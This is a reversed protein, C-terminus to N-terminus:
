TIFIGYFHLRGASALTYNNIVPRFHISSDSPDIYGMLFYPGAMGFLRTYLQPIAGYAIKGVYGDTGAAVATGDGSLIFDAQIINGCRIIKQSYISWAGSTKNIIYSSTIDRVNIRFCELGGSTKINGGVYLQYDADPIGNIGVSKRKIDYIM